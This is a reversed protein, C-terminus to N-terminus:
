TANWKDLAKGIDKGKRKKGKAKDQLIPFAEQLFDCNYLDMEPYKGDIRDFIEDLQGSEVYNSVIKLITTLQQNKQELRLEQDM